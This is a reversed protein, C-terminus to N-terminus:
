CRKDGCLRIKSQTNESEYWTLSMGITRGINTGDDHWPHSGDDMHDRRNFNMGGVGAINLGHLADLVAEEMLVVRSYASTKMNSDQAYNVGVEIDFGLESSFESYPLNRGMYVKLFSGGEFQAPLWFSQGYIRYGKPHKAKSEDTNLVSESGNWLMSLKEEPTPLPQDLPNPGDYWLLKALRVRPRENDDIPVYGNADPLDMLYRIIKGPIESIGRYRLVGPNPPSYPYWPNSFDLAM